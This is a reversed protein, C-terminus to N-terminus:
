NTTRDDCGEPKASAAYDCRINVGERVVEVDVIRNNPDSQDGADSYLVGLCSECVNRHKDIRTGNFVESIYVYFNDFM